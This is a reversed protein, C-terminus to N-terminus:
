QKQGIVLLITGKPVSTVGFQTIPPFGNNMLAMTLVGIPTKDEWPPIHGNGPDSVLIGLGNWAGYKMAPPATALDPHPDGGEAPIPMPVSVNWGAGDGDVGPGLWRRIHIAFTYAESDNPAYLLTVSGKSKGTLDAVFKKFDLLRPRQHKAVDDIYKQLALQAEAAEKQAHATKQQEKELDTQRKDSEATAVKLDTRLQINGAEVTAAREEAHAARESTGALNRRLYEEKINGMWVLLCTSIVGIILGVVLTVNAVDYLRSAWSESPWMRIGGKHGNGAISITRNEEMYLKTM